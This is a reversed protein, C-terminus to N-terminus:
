REDTEHDVTDHHNTVSGYHSQHVNLPSTPLSIAAPPQLLNGSSTNRFYQLVTHINM